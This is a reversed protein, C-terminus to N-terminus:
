IWPWVVAGYVKDSPPTIGQSRLLLGTGFCYNGRCATATGLYRTTLDLNGPQKRPNPQEHVSLTSSFHKNVSLRPKVDTSAERRPQSQHVPLEPTKIGFQRWGCSGPANAM